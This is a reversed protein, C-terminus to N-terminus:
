VKESIGKNYNRPVSNWYMNRLTSLCSGGTVFNTVQCKTQRQSISILCKLNTKFFSLPYLRERERYLFKFRFGGNQSLVRSTEVLKVLTIKKNNRILIRIANQYHRPLWPLFFGLQKGWQLLTLIRQKRCRFLSWIM